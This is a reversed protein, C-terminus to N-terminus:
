IRGIFRNLSEKFDEAPKPIGSSGVSFLVRKAGTPGITYGANDKIDINNDNLVKRIEEPLEQQNNKLQVSLLISNSEGGVIKVDYGKDKIIRKAESAIKDM